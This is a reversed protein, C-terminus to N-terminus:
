FDFAPREVLEVEANFAEIWTSCESVLERSSKRRAYRKKSRKKTRTPTGQCARIAHDLVVLRVLDDQVRRSMVRQELEDFRMKHIRDRRAYDLVARLLDPWRRLEARALKGQRCLWLGLARKTDFDLVCPEDVDTGELYELLVWMPEGETLTAWMQPSVEWEDGDSYEVDEDREAEDFIEADENGVLVPAHTTEEIEVVVMVPERFETAM